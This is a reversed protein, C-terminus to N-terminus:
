GESSHQKIATPTKVVMKDKARDPYPHINIEVEKPEALGEKKDEWIRTGISLAAGLIGGLLNGETSLIFAQPNGAISDFDLVIALFKYGIVFGVIGSIAKELLTSTKGKWIKKRVPDLLGLGEKRKLESKM